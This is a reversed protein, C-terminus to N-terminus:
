SVPEREEAVLTGYYSASGPFRNLESAFPNDIGLAGNIEFKPAPKFQLQTWGGVSDLGLIPTSSLLANAAM